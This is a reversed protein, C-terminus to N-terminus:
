EIPDFDILSEDITNFQPEIKMNLAEYSNLPVQSAYKSPLEYPDHLLVLAGDINLNLVNKIGRYSNITKIILGENLAKTRRPIVAAEYTNKSRYFHAFPIYHFDDSTSNLDLVNQSMAINFSFCIGYETITESRYENPSLIWSFVPNIAFESRKEFQNLIDLIDTIPM